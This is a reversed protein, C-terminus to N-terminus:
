ISLNTMGRKSVKRKTAEGHTVCGRYTHFPTKYEKLPEPKFKDDNGPGCIDNQLARQRTERGYELPTASTLRVRWM